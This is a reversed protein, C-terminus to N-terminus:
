SETGETRASAKKGRIFAGYSPYIQWWAKKKGHQPKTQSPGRGGGKRVASAAKAAKNRSANKNNRSM